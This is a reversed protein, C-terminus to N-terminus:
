AYIHIMISFICPIHHSPHGKENINKWPAKNQHEINYNRAFLLQPKPSLNYLIFEGKEKSRDQENSTLFTTTFLTTWHEPDDLQIYKNPYTDTLVSM